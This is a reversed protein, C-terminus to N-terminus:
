LVEFRADRKALIPRMAPPIINTDVFMTTTTSPENDTIHKLIGFM